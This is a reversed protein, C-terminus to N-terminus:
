LRRFEKVIYSKGKKIVRSLQRKRDRKIVNIGEYMNYIHTLVIEEALQLSFSGEIEWKGLSTHYKKIKNTKNM